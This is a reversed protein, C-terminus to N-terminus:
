FWQRKGIVYDRQFDADSKTLYLIGEILGVLGVAGSILAALPLLIIGGFGITLLTLIWAVVWVGLNLGLMILGANNMGLYFKHIGLSGLLIGLLGAILKKQAVDGSFFPASVPASPVPVSGLPRGASSHPPAPANWVDTPPPPVPTGTPMQPTRASGATARAVWDTGEWTDARAEGRPLEVVPPAPRPPDGPLRLDRAPDDAVPRPPPPPAQPQRQPQPEAASKPTLVEDVWSPADSAPSKPTKPDTM